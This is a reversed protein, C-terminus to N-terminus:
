FSMPRYNFIYFPLSPSSIPMIICENPALGQSMCAISRKRAQVFSMQKDSLLLAAASTIQMRQGNALRLQRGRQHGQAILPVFPVWRLQNVGQVM